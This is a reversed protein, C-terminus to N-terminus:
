FQESNLKHKATYVVLIETKPNSTTTSFCARKAKLDPQVDEIQAQGDATGAACGGTRSLLFPEPLAHLPVPRVSTPRKGGRTPGTGVGQSTAWGATPPIGRVSARDEM